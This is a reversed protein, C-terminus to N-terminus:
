RDRTLVELDFLDCLGLELMKISARIRATNRGISPIAEGERALEEAAAKLAQIKEHIESVSAAM